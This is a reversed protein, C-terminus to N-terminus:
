PREGYTVLELTGGPSRAFVFPPGGFADDHLMILEGAWGPGGTVFDFKANDCVAALDEGREDDALGWAHRVTPNGALDAWDKPLPVRPQHTNM